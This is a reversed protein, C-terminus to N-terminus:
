LPFSCMRRIKSFSMISELLFLYIFICIIKNYISVGSIKHAITLNNKIHSTSDTSINSIQSSNMFSIAENIISASEIIDSESDGGSISRKKESM